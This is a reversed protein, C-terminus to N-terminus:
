LPSAAYRLIVLTGEGHIHLRDRHYIIGSARLVLIGVLAPGPSRNLGDTTRHAPISHQALVKFRLEIEGCFGTM